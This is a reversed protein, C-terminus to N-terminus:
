ERDRSLGKALNTYIGKVCCITVLSFAYWLHQKKGMHNREAVWYSWGLDEIQPALAIPGTNKGKIRSDWSSSQGDTVYWDTHHSMYM